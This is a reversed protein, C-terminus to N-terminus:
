VPDSPHPSPLHRDRSKVGGKRDRVRDRTRRADRLSRRPCARRHAQQVPHPIRTPYGRLRCRASFLAHTGLSYSSQCFSVLPTPCMVVQCFKVPKKVPARKSSSQIAWPHATSSNDTKAEALKRVKSIAVVKKPPQYSLAPPAPKSKKAASSAHAQKHSSKTVADSPQAHRGDDDNDDTEDQSDDTADDGAPPDPSPSRPRKRSANSGSSESSAATSGSVSRM